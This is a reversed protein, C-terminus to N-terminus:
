RDETVFYGLARVERRDVYDEDSLIKMASYAAATGIGTAAALEAPLPIRQGPKWRGGDIETRILDALRRSRHRVITQTLSPWDAPDFPAAEFNHAVNYIPKETKIAEIEAKEAAARSPLWEVTRRVVAPRRSDEAYLPKHIEWRGDPDHSIGVYLLQDEAGYLRYLATRGQHPPGPM